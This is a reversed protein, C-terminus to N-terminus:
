RRRAGELASGAPNRGGDYIALAAHLRWYCHHTIARCRRLARRPMACGSVCCPLDTAEPCNRESLWPAWAIVEAKHRADIAALQEALWDVTPPMPQRECAALWVMVLLLRKM